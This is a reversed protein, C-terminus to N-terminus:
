KTPNQGSQSPAVMIRKAVGEAPVAKINMGPKLDQLTGRHPRQFEGHVRGGLFSVVTDSNVSINKENSQDTGAAVTVVIANDHVEKVTGFLGPSTASIHLIPPKRLTVLDLNMGSKLDQVAARGGDIFVETDKNTPIKLEQLRGEAPNTTSKSPFRQRVVLNDGDLRLLVGMMRLPQTTPATSPQITASLGVAVVVWLSIGVTLLLRLM